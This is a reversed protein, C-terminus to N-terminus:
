NLGYVKKMWRIGYAMKLYAAQNDGAHRDVDIGYCKEM